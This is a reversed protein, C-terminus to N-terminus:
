SPDAGGHRAKLQSEEGAVDGLQLAIVVGKRLEEGSERGM